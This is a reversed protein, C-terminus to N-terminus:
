PTVIVTIKNSKVFTKSAEDLEQIEITYKGPRSLDFLKTVNLRDRMTKHPTLPVYGGSAVVSAPEASEEATEPGQVHRGFKTKPARAGKEDQVMVKYVWGGQDLDGSIARYMSINRDSKNEMTVELFLPSGAKVTPEEAAISLSFRPPVNGSEKKDQALAGRFVCICTTVVLMVVSWRSSRSKQM